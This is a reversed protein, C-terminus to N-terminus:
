IERSTPASHILRGIKRQRALIALRNSVRPVSLHDRRWGPGPLGERGVAPSRRKQGRRAVRGAQAPRRSREARIFGREMDSHVRGAAQVATTGRPIPWARVEKDGFTLFPILDLIEYSAEIVRFRALEQIGWEQMFEEREAPPFGILEKELLCCVALCSVGQSQAWGKVVALRKGPYGKLHEARGVPTENFPFRIGDTGKKGRSEM